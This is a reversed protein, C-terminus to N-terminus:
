ANSTSGQIADALQTFDAEIDAPITEGWEFALLAYYEGVKRRVKQEDLSAISVAVRFTNGMPMAALTVRGHSFLQGGNALFEAKMDKRELKEGTSLKTNSM